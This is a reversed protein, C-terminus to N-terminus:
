PEYYLIPEDETITWRKLVHDKDYTTTVFFSHGPYTATGISEMSSITGIMRTHIEGVQSVSPGGDWYLILPHLSLNIFKTAFGTFTLYAPTIKYNPKTKALNIEFKSRYFTSVHPQDYVKTGM